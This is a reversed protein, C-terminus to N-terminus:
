SRLNTAPIRSTRNLPTRPLVNSKSIQPPILTPTFMQEPVRIPTLPSSHITTSTQPSIDFSESFSAVSDEHQKSIDYIENEAISDPLSSM